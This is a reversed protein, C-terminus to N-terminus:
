GRPPLNIKNDKLAKELVPIGATNGAACQARADAIAGSPTAGKGVYEEYKASLAKCYAVDGSQAFAGLPLALGLACFLSTHILRM